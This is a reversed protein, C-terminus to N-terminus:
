KIVLLKEGKSFIKRFLERAKNRIAEPCKVRKDYYQIIANYDEESLEIREIQPTQPAIMVRPPQFAVTVQSPAITISAGLYCKKVKRKGKERRVHVAYHYIRNGIRREELYSFKQGCKPCIKGSIGEM